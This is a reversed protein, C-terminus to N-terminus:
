VPPQNSSVWIGINHSLFNLPRKYNAVLTAYPEREAVLTANQSGFNGVTTYLSTTSDPAGTSPEPRVQDGNVVPGDLSQKKVEGIPVDHSNLCM